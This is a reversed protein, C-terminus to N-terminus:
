ADCGLLNVLDDFGYVPPQFLDFPLPKAQSFPTQSSTEIKILDLFSKTDLRVGSFFNLKM